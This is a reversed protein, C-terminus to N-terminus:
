RAEGNWVILWESHCGHCVYNSGSPNKEPNLEYLRSGCEPCKM